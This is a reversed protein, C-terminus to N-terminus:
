TSSPQTRLGLVPHADRPLQDIRARACMQPGITEVTREFVDELELVFHGGTDGTNNLWRQLSGFCGTQHVQKNPDSPRRGRDVHNHSTRRTPM